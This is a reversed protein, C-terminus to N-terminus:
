HSVTSRIVARILDLPIYVVRGDADTVRLHEESVSDVSGMVAVGGAVEIRLRNGAESHESLRARLKMGTPRGPTGGGEAPVFSWVAHELPIEAEQEALRLTAYDLGTALIPGSLAKGEFEATAREGRHSADEVVGMMNLKRKRLEETLNEDEAAEEAM